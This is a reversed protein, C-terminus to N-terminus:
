MTYRYITSGSIFYIERDRIAFGGTVKVPSQAILGAHSSITDIAFIGEPALGYIRGDPGLAASNYIPTSFSLEQKSVIKREEPDFAFLTRDAIGYVLNNPATILDTISGAGAVPVIDLEKQHTKTNWIFLRAERDIALSGGGGNVETGGVILDRWSALSV